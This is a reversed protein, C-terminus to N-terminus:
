GTQPTLGRGFLGSRVCVSPKNFFRETRAPIPNGARSHNRFELERVLKLVAFSLKQVGFIVKEVTGSIQQQM